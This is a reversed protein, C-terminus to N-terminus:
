EIRRRNQPTQRAACDLKTQPITAKRRRVIGPTGLLIWFSEGRVQFPENIEEDPQNPVLRESGQSEIWIRSTAM